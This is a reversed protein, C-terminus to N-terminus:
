SRRGKDFVRGFDTFGKESASLMSQRLEGFLEAQTLMKKKFKSDGTFDYLQKLLSNKVNNLEVLKNELKALHIRHTINKECVDEEGWLSISYERVEVDSMGKSGGIVYRSFDENELRLNGIPFWKGFFISKAWKVYYMGADDVKVKVRDMRPVITGGKFVAFFEEQARM